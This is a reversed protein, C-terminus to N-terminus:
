VSCFNNGTILRNLLFTVTYPFFHNNKKVVIKEPFADSFRVFLSFPGHKNESMGVLINAIEM